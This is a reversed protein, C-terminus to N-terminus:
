KDRESELDDLRDELEDIRRDLEEIEKYLYGIAEDPELSTYFGRSHQM